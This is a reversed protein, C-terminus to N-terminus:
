NVVAYYDTVRTDTIATIFVLYYTSTNEVPYVFYRSGSIQMDTVIGSGYKFVQIRYSGSFSGIYFGFSKGTPVQWESGSDLFYVTQGASVDLPDPQYTYMKMGYANYTLVPQSTSSALATSVPMLCLTAISVLAVIRRLITKM